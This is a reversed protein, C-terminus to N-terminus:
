DYCVMLTLITNARMKLVAPFPDRLILRDRGAWGIERRVLIQPCATSLLAGLRGGPGSDDSDRGTSGMGIERRICGIERRICGIERRLSNYVMFM